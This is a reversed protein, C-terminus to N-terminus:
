MPVRMIESSFPTHRARLRIFIRASPAISRAAVLSTALVAPVETAL